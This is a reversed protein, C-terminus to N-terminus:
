GGFDLDMQFQSRETAPAPMYDATTLTEAVDDGLLFRVLELTEESASESYVVYYALRLPYDGYFVSQSTPGYAQSTESTSIFLLRVQPHDESVPFLGISNSDDAVQDVVAARTPLYDVDVRMERPGLALARFLELNLHDRDRTANFAILRGAWSGEADLEGWNSSEGKPRSAFLTRLQTLSLETVPNLENVGVVTVEFAFPFSVVGETPPVGNPIALIAVDASGDTLAAEGTLSGSFDIQLDWDRRDAEFELDSRLAEGLLDSGVLRVSASTWTSSVLLGLFLSLSTRNFNM